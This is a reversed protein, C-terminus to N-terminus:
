ANITREVTNNIHKMDCRSYSVNFLSCRLSVYHLFICMNKLTLVFGVHQDSFVALVQTILQLM